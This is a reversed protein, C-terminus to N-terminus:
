NKASPIEQAFRTQILQVKYRSNAGNFREDITKGLREDMTKGLRDDLTKGLRDTISKRKTSVPYPRVASKHVKNDSRKLSGLRKEIPKTVQKHAPKTTHKPENTTQAHPKIVVPKPPLAIQQSALMKFRQLESTGRPCHSPNNISQSCRDRINHSCKHFTAIQVPGCESVPLTPQYTSPNPMIVKM